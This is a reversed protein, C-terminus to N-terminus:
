QYRAARIRLPPRNTSAFNFGLNADNKIKVVENPQVKAVTNPTSLVTVAAHGTGPLLAALVAPALVALWARTTRTGPVRELHAPSPCVFLAPMSPRWYHYDHQLPPPARSRRAAFRPQQKKRIRESGPFM